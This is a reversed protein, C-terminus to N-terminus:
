ILISIMTMKIMKQSLKTYKSNEKVNSKYLKCDSFMNDNITTTTSFFFTICPLFFCKTFFRLLYAKESNGYAKTEFHPQTRLWQYSFIQKNGKLYFDNALFPKASLRTKFTLAKSSQLPRNLVDGCTKRLM